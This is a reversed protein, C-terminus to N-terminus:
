HNSPGTALTNKADLQTKLTHAWAPTPTTDSTTERPQALAKQMTETNPYTIYAVAQNQNWNYIQLQPQDSSTNASIGLANLQSSLQSLDFAAAYTRNAAPASNRDPHREELYRRRQNLVDEQFANFNAEVHTRLHKEASQLLPEPAHIAISLTRNSHEYHTWSPRIGCAFIQSARTIAHDLDNTEFQFLRGPKPRTVIMTADLIVGFQGETGIYLYRFDPGTAKRPAPIYRYREHAPTIASLAVCGERIDGYFLSKDNHQRCSLLGGLTSTAPYLNYNQMSFGHEAVTEQLNRWTIGSETRILGSLVDFTLTKTCNTTRIVDFPKDPNDILQAITQPRLQQGDGIILRPPSDVDRPQTLLDSLERSNDPWYEAAPEPLNRRTYFSRAIRTKKM